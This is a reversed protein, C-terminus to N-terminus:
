CGVRRAISRLSAAIACHVLWPQGASFFFRAAFLARDDEDVFASQARAGVSHAGPGGAAAGGHQLLREVPFFEREDGSDGQPLEEEPDVFAADVPHPGGLEEM